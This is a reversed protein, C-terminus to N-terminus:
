TEETVGKSELCRALLGLAQKKLSHVYAKSLGTAEAAARETLEPLLYLLDVVRRHKPELQGLCTDLASLTDAIEVAQGTPDEAAASGSGGQPVALSRTEARRADTEYAPELDSVVAPANRERRCIQLFERETIRFIWGLLEGCTTGRYEDRHDWLRWLANQGCDERNKKPVGLVAVFKALNDRIMPWASEFLQWAERASGRLAGEALTALSTEPSQSSEM